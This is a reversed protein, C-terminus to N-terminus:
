KRAVTGSGHVSTSVESPNGTYTIDGSGNVEARLADTAWVDADGSGNITIEARAARLAGFRLDGSGTVVATLSGVEGKVTVDGSGNIRIDLEDKAVGAAKIDGSGNLVLEELVSMTIAITVGQRTSYSEKASIRLRGNASETLILPVINDDATVVRQHEEGPSITIDASGELVITDFTALDRTESARTGSGVVVGGIRECSLLLFALAAGACLLAVTLVVRATRMADDKKRHDKPERAAFSRGAM